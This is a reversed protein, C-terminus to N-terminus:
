AFVPNVDMYIRYEAVKTDSFRFTNACPLSVTGGDLREYHVTMFVVVWDPEVQWLHHIEHQLGAIGALFEVCTDVVATKGDVQDSNGFRFVIGDAFRDALSATDKNDVTELLNRVSTELSMSGITMHQEETHFAAPPRGGARTPDDTTHHIV